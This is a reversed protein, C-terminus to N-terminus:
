TQQNQIVLHITCHLAMSAIAGFILSVYGSFIPYSTFVSKTVAYAALGALVCLITLTDQRLDGNYRATIVLSIVIVSLFKSISDSSVSEQLLTIGIGAAYFFLAAVLGLLALLYKIQRKTM